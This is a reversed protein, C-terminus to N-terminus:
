GQWLFVRIWVEVAHLYGERLIGQSDTGFIYICSGIIVINALAQLEKLLEKKAMIQNEEPLEKTARWAFIRMGILLIILLGVQRIVDRKNM